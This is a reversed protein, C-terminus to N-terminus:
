ASLTACDFCMTHRQLKKCSKFDKLQFKPHETQFSEINGGHCNQVCDVIRGAKYIWSKLPDGLSMQKTKVLHQTEAVAALYLEIKATKDKCKSSLGQYEKSLETILNENDPLAKRKKRHGTSDCSQANLAPPEDDQVGLAAKKKTADVIVASLASEIENRLGIDQVKALAGQLRQRSSPMPVFALVNRYIFPISAPANRPIKVVDLIYWKALEPLPKIYQNSRMNANAFQHSSKIHIPEWEGVRNSMTDKPDIRDLLAKLTGSDGIYTATSSINKHRASLLINAADMANMVLKDATATIRNTLVFGWFAFLFATKRLIHTGLILNLMTPSKPDEKLINIILWQLKSLFTKYLFCEMPIDGVRQLKLYQDESPFLPGSKIGSIYMWILVAKCSSFEPCDKDDWLMFPLPRGERKGKIMTCLGEVNMETVAFHDTKFKEVTMTCVEDIRMFLKIGVIIMTWLMLSEHDNNAVLYERLERVQYPLLAYTSRAEYHNEIYEVVEVMIKKFKKSGMCNGRRWYQPSGPHKECGHGKCINKIDLKRCNACEEIYSGQTTEYHSHLKTIAARFLGPVSTGQWDGRTKIKRNHIDYVPAGTDPDTLDQPELVRFRLFLIATRMKVPVPDKPCIIRCVIMASEYDGILFCFDRFMPWIQRYREISSEKASDTGVTDNTKGVIQIKPSETDLNYKKILKEVEEFGHKLDISAIQFRLASAQTREQYEEPEMAVLRVQFLSTLPFLLAGLRMGIPRRTANTTRLLFHTVRRASTM